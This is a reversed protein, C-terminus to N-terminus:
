GGAIGHSPKHESQQSLESAQLSFVNDLSGEIKIM